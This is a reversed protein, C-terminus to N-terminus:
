INNLTAFLIPPLKVCVCKLLSELRLHLINEVHFTKISEANPVRCEEFGKMNNSSFHRLYEYTSMNIYIALLFNEVAMITSLRALLCHCFGFLSCLIVFTHAFHIWVLYICHLCLFRNSKCIQRRGDGNLTTQITHFSIRGKMPTFNRNFSYKLRTFPFLVCM